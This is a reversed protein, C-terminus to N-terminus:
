DTYQKGLLLNWASNIRSKTGDTIGRQLHLHFGYGEMNATSGYTQGTNGMYGIVQGVTVKDGEKVLQSGCWMHMYAYIAGDVDSQIYVCDGEVVKKDPYSWGGVPRNITTISHDSAQDSAVAWSPKKGTVSANFCKVRVVTGATIAHIKILPKVSLAYRKNDGPYKTTSTVVPATVTIDYGYHKNADNYGEDQYGRSQGVTSNWVPPAYDTFTYLPGVNQQNGNPTVYKTALLAEDICKQHEPSEEAVTIGADPDVHSKSGRFHVDVVGDMDNGKIFDLNDTAFPKNDFGGHPMGAISAAYLVGNTGKILIPRRTWSWTGGYLEKLTATDSATATECDAHNTGVTRKLTFEKGTEVDICELTGPGGADHRPFMTNAVSWDIAEISTFGTSPGNGNYSETKVEDFVKKDQMMYYYGENSGILAYAFASWYLESDMVANIQTSYGLKGAESSTVGVDSTSGGSYSIGLLKKRWYDKASNEEGYVMTGGNSSQIDLILMGISSRVSSGKTGGLLSRHWEGYYATAVESKQADTSKQYQEIHSTDWTLQWMDGSASLKGTGGNSAMEEVCKDLSTKMWTIDFGQSFSVDPLYMGNPRLRFGSQGGSTITTSYFVDDQKPPPTINASVTNEVTNSGYPNQYISREIVSLPGIGSLQTVDPRVSANKAGDYHPPIGWYEGDSTAGLVANDKASGERTSYQSEFGYSWHKTTGPDVQYPGVHATSGNGGPIYQQYIDTAGNLSCTTEIAYASYLLIPDFGYMDAIQSFLQYRQAMARQESYEGYLATLKDYDITLDGVYDPNSSEGGPTYNFSEDPESMAYYEAINYKVFIKQASNTAM